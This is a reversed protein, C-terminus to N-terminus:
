CETICGQLNLRNLWSNKCKKFDYVSRAQQTNPIKTNYAGQVADFAVQKVLQAM